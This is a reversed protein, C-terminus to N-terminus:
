PDLAEVPLVLVRRRWPVSITKEVSQGLVAMVKPLRAQALSENLRAEVEAVTWTPLRITKGTYALTLYGFALALVVLTLIVTLSIQGRRRPRASRAPGPPRAAAEEVPHTLILPESQAPAAVPARGDEMGASQDNM